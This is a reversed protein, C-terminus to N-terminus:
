PGSALGGVPGLLVAQPSAQVQQQGSTGLSGNAGNHGPRGSGVPLGNRVARGKESGTSDGDSRRYSTDKTGDPQLRGKSLYRSRQAELHGSAV